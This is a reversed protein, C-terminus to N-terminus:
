VPEILMDRETLWKTAGMLSQNIVQHMDLYQYTGCRGIFKINDIQHALASYAIFRDNISPDNSKIPYYRERENELYSCPEEVTVLHGATGGCTPIKNWHTERTFPKDDTYNIVSASTDRLNSQHISHHFKISRYPLEGYSYDFYEDIPMSLFAASFHKEMGRTFSTNLETKINEHDLIRAFLANYGDTPMAQFSDNLFYRDENSLRPTLRQVVDSSLDDLELAWMKRTYRAYFLETIDKGLSSELWTRANARGCSPVAVSGLYREASTEDLDRRGSVDRLTDLNIPIPTLQGNPLLAKVKHVYQTWETFRSLWDVVRMNSTHFLHPGYKHFRIGDLNEEFANGGIHPRKDVVSVSLGHEALVRAYVAGAFGAGVILISQTM